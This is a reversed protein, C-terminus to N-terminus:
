SAESCNQGTKLLNVLCSGVIWNFFWCRTLLWSWFFVRGQHATFKLGSVKNQCNDISWLMSTWYWLLVCYVSTAHRQWGMIQLIAAMNCSETATTRVRGRAIGSAMIVMLFDVWPNRKTEWILLSPNLCDVVSIPYTCEVVYSFIYLIKINWVKFLLANHNVFQQVVCPPTVDRLGEKNFILAMQFTCYKISLSYVYM